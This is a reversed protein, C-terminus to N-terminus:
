YVGVSIGVTILPLLIPILFLNGYQISHLLIESDLHYWPCTHEGQANPEPRKKQRHQIIKINLLFRYHFFLIIKLLCLFCQLFHPLLILDIAILISLLSFDKRNIRRRRSYASLEMNAMYKRVCLCLHNRTKLPHLSIIYKIWKTKIIISRDRIFMESGVLSSMIDYSTM